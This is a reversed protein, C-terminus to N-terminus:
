NVNRTVKTCDCKVNKHNYYCTWMSWNWREWHWKDHWTSVNGEEEECLCWVMHECHSRRGWWQWQSSFYWSYLALHQMSLLSCALGCSNTHKNPLLRGSMDVAVKLTVYRKCEWDSTCVGYIFIASAVIHVSQVDLTYFNGSVVQLVPCGWFGMWLPM